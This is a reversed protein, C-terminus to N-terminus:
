AEYTQRIPSGQLQRIHLNGRQSDVGPRRWIIM